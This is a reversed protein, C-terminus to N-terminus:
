FSLIAQYRNPNTAGNISSINANRRPEEAARGGLLSVLRDHLEEKTQLYKEEEPVHM